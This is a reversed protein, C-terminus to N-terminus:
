RISTVLGVGDNYVVSILLLAETLRNGWYCDESPVGVMEGRKGVVIIDVRHVGTRYTSGELFGDKRPYTRIGVPPPCGIRFRCYMSGKRTREQVDTRVMLVVLPSSSTLRIIHALEFAQAVRHAKYRHAHPCCTTSSCSDVFQFM